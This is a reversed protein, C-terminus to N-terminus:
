SIGRWHVPKLRRGHRKIPKKWQKKSVEDFGVSVSPRGVGEHPHPGSLFEAFGSAPRYNTKIRFLVPTFGDYTDSRKGMAVLRVTGMATGWDIVNWTDCSNGVDHYQQCRYNICGITMEGLLHCHAVRKYCHVWQESGM